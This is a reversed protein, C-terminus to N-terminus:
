PHVEPGTLETWHTVGSILGAYEPRWWGDEDHHAIQFHDTAACYILQQFGNDPMEKNVDIWKM